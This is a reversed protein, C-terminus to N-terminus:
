ESGEPRVQRRLRGMAGRTRPAKCASVRPQASSRPSSPRPRRSSSSPSRAPVPITQRVEFSFVRAAVFTDTEGVTQSRFRLPPEAVGLVSSPIFPRRPRSFGGRRRRPDRPHGEVCTSWFHPLRGPSPDRTVSGSRSPWLSTTSPDTGFVRPRSSEGARVRGIRLRIM